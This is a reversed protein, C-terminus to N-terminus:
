SVIRGVGFVNERMSHNTRFIWISLEVSNEADHLIRKEVLSLFQEKASHLTEQAFNESDDTFHEDVAEVDSSCNFLRSSNRKLDATLAPEPPDSIRLFSNKTREKSRSRDLATRSKTSLKGPSVFSSINL